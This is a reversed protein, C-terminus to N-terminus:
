ARQVASPWLVLKGGETEFGQQLFAHALESGAAPSGDIEQVELRPRPRLEPPLQLWAQLQQLLAPAMADHWGAGRWLRSAFNELYAVPREEYFLLHHGPGRTVAIKGGNRGTFNWEVTGGLPLAPDMTCVLVAPLPDDHKGAQLEELLDAAAPLAFQVGSLGDIFYGRLIEGQWELRKLWHFLQPWPLLGNERRYGEKVVIGHRQLLLRAQQAARDTPAREKGLVGFSSTLFWRGEPQASAVRERWMRPFGPQPRRLRDATAWSPRPVLDPPSTGATPAAPASQLCQLFARYNDCSVLGLNVLTRLAQEIQLASLSTGILLDRKLSAGNEQLFQYITGAAEDLGGATERLAPKSLFTGGEGRPIFMVHRRGEEGTRRAVVIIEGAAIMQELAALAAPLQEGGLRSRLVEREFMQLPFQCGSYKRLLEQLSQGTLAFKHWRLLLRYYVERSAPVRAARRLAIARRYLEAFNHRDCWQEGAVGIILQGRVVERQRHLQALAQQLLEAPLHRVLGSPFPTEKAALEALPLPGHSRLLRQVLTLVSTLTFPAQFLPADTAAVWGAFPAPLCLIRQEQQLQELWPSIDSRSRRQLERGPLPGLKEIIVLLDEASAAQTEPTVCQWRAEAAAVLEATLLTPITERALIEALLASSTEAAQAPARHRDFDYLNEATLRYMLGAAMPSPRATEVVQLRLEQAQLAALVQRLAPLDFLGQLCDRYTELLIPFDPFQRVMQLLDAARLRQLWLPVRKGARSRPLLLARVANHRFQTVFLASNSVRELLSQEIVDPPLRLLEAPAPPESTDPLRLVIGDDNYSYQVEAQHRKELVRCLAIAWAGNVRSGFPAHLILCSEEAHDRYWEAVIQRDTAIAGTCERQRAFYNALNTAIAADSCGQQELWTVCDGRDLHELLERRFAAIKLSTAYDRFLHEGRWFPPRPKLARVPSVILRDRAIAEIRWESSGLYFVDHVRSEFVFEEELEGLKTNSDALYVAYYGRDPITGANLTALLRAGRRALLRDNIRDWILRPQLAHRPTEAYRGALMELVNDFMAPSLQRYCYSQCVLRYLAPRPWERMAVEAVLQQSLVDLCNEPIVTEEIDGAHMCRALTVSDDLDAPYLPLLRGKSTASLLHGSRGVRQLGAAVTRPSELQVVLDISGIDIGLELSATAIVAPIEGAKLRAEIEHRRERALSGHHALAIEAEPDGTADRHKENLRRAIRESQARMNVFVLTTRHARILDYLKDIVAHWVTADPLDGFDPVPSIVQLDMEKRGGCDIITVPRPVPRDEGPRFVQGGLYAAIRELPKQTASLGIRVPEQTCLPMLRELSLSLHVGRKNNSIAHIEDVILYRLGHFLERGAPATLLLFLSEPTTILLHPPRRLMAQRESAPTDGTRVLARIPPPAYGLARSVEQIGQLPQQLNRHIDNNLAKLPSVYLTHIGEVNRGFDIPSQQLGRRFLDDLCWLFAALTKGSGTPALILTHRGAAIVPWGQAQPPSPAAFNESFWRAIVPHFPLDPLM